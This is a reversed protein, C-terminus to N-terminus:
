TVKIPLVQTGFIYPTAFTFRVKCETASRSLWHLQPQFILNLELMEYECEKWADFHCQLVTFM